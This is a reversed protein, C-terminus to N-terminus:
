PREGPKFIGQSVADSFLKDVDLGAQKYEYYLEVYAVKLHKTSGLQKAYIIIKELLSVDSTANNYSLLLNDLELLDM